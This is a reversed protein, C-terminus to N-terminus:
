RRTPAGATLGIEEMARVLDSPGTVSTDYEVYAMDVASNVYVSSVGRLRALARSTSLASIPGRTHERVAITVREKGM